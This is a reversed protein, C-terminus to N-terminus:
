KWYNSRSSFCGPNGAPPGNEPNALPNIIEANPSSHDGECTVLIMEMLLCLYFCLRRIDMIWSLNRNRKDKIM